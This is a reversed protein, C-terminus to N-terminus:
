KLSNIAYNIKHVVTAITRLMRWIYVPHPLFGQRNKLGTINAVTHYPTICVLDTALQNWAMETAM